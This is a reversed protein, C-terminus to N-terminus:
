SACLSLGCTQTAQSASSTTEGSSVNVIRPSRGRLLLPLCALYRLNRRALQRLEGHAVADLFVHEGVRLFGAEMGGLRQEVLEVGALGGIM